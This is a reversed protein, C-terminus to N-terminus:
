SERAEASLSTFIKIQAWSERLRACLIEIFKRNVKKYNFVIKFFDEKSIFLIESCEQAVMRAPNTRGDIIAMEGFFDGKGQLALIREGGDELLKVVRVVGKIIVYFFKGTDQEDLIVDNKKFKKWSFSSELKELCDQQLENFLPIMRLSLLKKNEM